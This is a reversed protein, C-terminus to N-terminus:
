GIRWNTGDYYVPVHTSGGAAVIAGIGATFSVANSDNVSARMGEVPSAPLNAVAIAAIKVSGAFSASADSSLTVTTASDAAGKSIVVRTAGTTATQDFVRFTGTSGSKEVDLLYNGDSTGGILINGGATVRFRENTTASGGTAFKLVGAVNENIYTIGGAADGGFAASSTSYVGSSIASGYVQNWSITAGNYTRIEAKGNTATNEVRVQVTGSSTASNVHLNVSPSVTGLGLRHNTADWFFQGGSTQDQSLIGSASVYPIAGVTTINGQGGTYDAGATAVSPIGATFKILGTLGSLTVNGLKSSTGIGTSGDVTLATGVTLIGASDIRMRETKVSPTADTSTEFAIYSPVRTAAITGSSVFSIAASAIFNAGDYAYAELRTLLDATVITLPVAQTGRAKYGNFRASATDTTFQASIVGRPVTGIVSVNSFTDGILTGGIALSTATSVGLAGGGGSSQGGTGTVAAVYNGSTADLTFTLTLAM